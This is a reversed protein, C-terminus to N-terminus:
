SYDSISASKLLVLLQEVDPEELRAILERILGYVFVCSIAGLNYLRAWFRVINTKEKGEEDQADFRKLSEAM